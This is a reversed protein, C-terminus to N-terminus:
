STAYKCTRFVGNSTRLERGPELLSIDQNRAQCVFQQSKLSCNMAKLVEIDVKKWPRTNGLNIEKLESNWSPAKQDYFSFCMTKLVTNAAFSAMKPSFRICQDAANNIIPYMIIVM